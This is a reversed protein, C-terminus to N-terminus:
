AKQPAEGKSTRKLIGGSIALAIYLVVLVGFVGLFRIVLTGIIWTWNDRVTVTSVGGGKLKSVTISHWPRDKHDEIFTHWGRDRFKIDEQGKLAEKYFALADEYSMDYTKELRSDTQTVIKGGPLVPAGLFDEACLCTPCFICVFLVVLILRKM